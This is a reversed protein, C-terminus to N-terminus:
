IKWSLVIHRVMSVLLPVGRTTANFYAPYIHFRKRLIIENDVASVHTDQVCCVSSTAFLGQDAISRGWVGFIWMLYGISWQGNSQPQIGPNISIYLCRRSIGNLSTLDIITGELSLNSIVGPFRLKLARFESIHVFVSLKGSFFFQKIETNKKM